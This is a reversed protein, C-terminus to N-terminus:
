CRRRTRWRHLGTEEYILEWERDNGGGPVLAARSFLRTVWTTGGGGVSLARSSGGSPADGGVYVDVCRAADREPGPYPVAGRAASNALRSSPLSM